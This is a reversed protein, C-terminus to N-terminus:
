HIAAPHPTILLSLPPLSPNPVVPVPVPFESEWNRVGFGSDGVQIRFGSGSGEEQTMWRLGVNLNAVRLYHQMAEADGLVLQELQAAEPQTLEDDRLAFLLRDLTERQPATLSM